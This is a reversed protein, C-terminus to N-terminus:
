PQLAHKCALGDIEHQHGPQIRQVAKVVLPTEGVPPQLLAHLEKFLM